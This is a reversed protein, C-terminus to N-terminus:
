RKVRFTGNAGRKLGYYNLLTDESFNQNKGLFEVPLPMKELDARLVKHTNFIKQFVWNLLDSNLVRVINGQDIPFDQNPIVMNVSNLFYSQAKDHYFVLDSSIFRYLIKEETEFLEKPAVQQYLSLDTPIFVTPERIFGKHIDVGKFVPMLDAGSNTKCFKKNNGTIVGLGWRASGKLTVFPKNFIAALVAADDGCSEFNIISAPNASFSAQEREFSRDQLICNVTRLPPHTKELCFSQAKTLLGSFPKGFDRATKMSYSLMKERAEQFIAIKFFSEPLLLALHGGDRLVKMSAFFFLSCTDLSRGSGLLQGYNQKVDKSLKKGWPPNTLIADFISCDADMQVAFDLFDRQKINESVYGTEALIRKKTLEVAIPDTDFGFVKDPSFGHKIAAIIFNGGGCCPDCVTQDADPPLIDSFMDDCIDEPTYYIGEKNRYANSLSKEYDAALESLDTSTKLAREMCEVLEKHDHSDALSKNARKNLKEKGAVNAQFHEFSERLVGKELDFALYGTKIWNRVSAESVSLSRAVEAITMSPAVPQIAELEVAQQSM